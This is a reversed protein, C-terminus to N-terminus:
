KETSFDFIVFCFQEKETNNYFPTYSYHSVNYFTAHRETSLSHLYIIYSTYYVFCHLFLILSTM